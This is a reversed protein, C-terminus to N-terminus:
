SPYKMHFENSEQKIGKMIDDIPGLMEEQMVTMKVSMEEETRMAGARLRNYKDKKPSLM